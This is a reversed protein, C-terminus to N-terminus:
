LVFLFVVTVPRRKYNYDFCDCMSSVVFLVSYSLCEILLCPSRSVSGEVFLPEIGGFSFGTWSIVVYLPRACKNVGGSSVASIIVAVSPTRIQQFLDSSRDPGSLGISSNHM